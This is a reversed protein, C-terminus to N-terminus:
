EDRGGELTDLLQLMAHALLDCFIEKGAHNTEFVAEIGSVELFAHGWEHLAVFDRWPGDAMREALLIYPGDDGILFEGWDGDDLEVKNDSYVPVDIAGIKFIV